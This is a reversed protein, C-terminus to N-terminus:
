GSILLRSKTFLVIIELGIIMIALVILVLQFNNMELLISNLKGIFNVCDGNPNCVNFEGVGFKLGSNEEGKLEITLEGEYQELETKSIEMSNVFIVLFVVFAILIIIRAITEKDFRKM